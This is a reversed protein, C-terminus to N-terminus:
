PQLSLSFNKFDSLAEPESNVGQNPRKWMFSALRSIMNLPCRFILLLKFTIDKM